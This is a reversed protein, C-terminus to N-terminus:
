PLPSLEPVISFAPSDRLFWPKVLSPDDVRQWAMAMRFQFAGMMERPLSMHRTFFIRARARRAAAVVERIKAITLAADKIQSAIGVQMDYVLLALRGSRCVDTLSGPIDLDFIRKM